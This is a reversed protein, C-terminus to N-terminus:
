LLSETRVTKVSCRTDMAPREEMMMAMMMRTQDEIERDSVLHKEQEEEDEMSRKSRREGKRQEKVELKKIEKLKKKLACRDSHSCM